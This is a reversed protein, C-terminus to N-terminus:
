PLGLGVLFQQGLSQWCDWEEQVCFFMKKVRDIQGRDGKWGVEVAGGGGGGGGDGGEGRGRKRKEGEWGNVRVGLKDEIM